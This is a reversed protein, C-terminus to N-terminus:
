CLKREGKVPCASEKGKSENLNHPNPTYLKKGKKKGTNYVPRGGIEIREGCGNM